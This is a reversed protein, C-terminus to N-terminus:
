NQDRANIKNREFDEPTDQKEALLAAVRCEIGRERLYDVRDLAEQLFPYHAPLNKYEDCQDTQWQDDKRYIICYGYVNIGSPHMDSKNIDEDPM